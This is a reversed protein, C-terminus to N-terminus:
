YQKAGQHIWKGTAWYLFFDFEELEALDTGPESQKWNLQQRAWVSLWKFKADRSKM